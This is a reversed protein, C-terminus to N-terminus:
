ARFDMLTAYMSDLDESLDIVKTVYSDGRDRFAVLGIRLQPQPQANSMNSAISWINNKAAQILDSMSSTTDLVFVAEVLPKAAPAAIANVPTAAPQPQQALRLAGPYAYVVVATTLLLASVLLKTKM